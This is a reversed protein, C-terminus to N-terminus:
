GPEGRELSDQLEEFALETKRAYGYGDPVGLAKSVLENVRTGNTMGIKPRFAHERRLWGAQVATERLLTKETQGDFSMQAPIRLAVRLVAPHWYLNSLRVGHAWAFFPSLEMSWRTREILGETEDVGVAALYAGHRLMGGFLLDSGYGTFVNEVVGAAASSLKSVQLLIEATMGDYVENAYIVSRWQARIESEAMRVCRHSIRLERALEEAERFEDGLATGLTFAVPDPARQRLLSTAVSSDIGGSLFAGCKGSVDLENASEVLSELLAQGAAARSELDPRFSRPSELDVPFYRGVNLFPSYARDRREIRVVDSKPKWELRVGQIAPLSKAEATWAEIRPDEYHWLPFQGLPDCEIAPSPGDLSLRAWASHSPFGTGRPFAFRAVAGDFRKLEEGISTFFLLFDGIRARTLGGRYPCLRRALDAEDVPPWDGEKKARILLFPM